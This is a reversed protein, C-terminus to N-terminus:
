LLKAIGGPKLQLVGAVQLRLLANHIEASSLWTRERLTKMACPISVHAGIAADEIHSLVTTTTHIPAM